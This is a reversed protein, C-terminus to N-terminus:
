GNGLVENLYSQLNKLDERSLSVGVLDRYEQAILLFEDESRQEISATSWFGGDRTKKFWSKTM